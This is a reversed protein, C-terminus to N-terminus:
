DKQSNNANAHLGEKRLVFANARSYSFGERSAVYQRVNGGIFYM